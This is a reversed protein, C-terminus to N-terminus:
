EYVPMEFDIKTGSKVRLASARTISNRGFREHLGDLTRQIEEENDTRRPAEFLSYQASGSPVLRWLAIGIQTYSTGQKFEAEFCLRLAPLIATETSAPQPLSVSAGTHTYDHAADGRLWVSLGRCALDHRRMKLMVYEAHRLLHAWLFARDRTARFSRARSVSKPPDTESRVASLCEGLLERQMEAGPRGCLAIMEHVPAIAIDWATKWGKAEAKPMRRRGIGPIAAAPRDSLMQEISLYLSEPDASIPISSPDDSLRARRADKRTVVTVGAPKRYEGAMKALLKSPGIGASVSLGVYRLVKAQVDKGWAMLDRPVGGVVTKLDMYWEDISMQELVPCAEQLIAEIQQSALGTERFDAPMEIANPVLKRAETLRMGTKVGYAKAEYSAAIVCSGGMGLALLPKGRLRPNQRVLVSAFFSDADVHAIMIRITLFDHHYSSASRRVESHCKAPCTM